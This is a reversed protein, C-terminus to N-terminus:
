GVQKLLPNLGNMIQVVLNNLVNKMQKLVDSLLKVNINDNIVITITSFSKSILYAGFHCSM